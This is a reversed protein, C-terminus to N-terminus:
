WTGYEESSTRRMYPGFLCGFFLRLFAPWNSLEDFLDGKGRRQEMWAIAQDIKSMIFGKPLLLGRM